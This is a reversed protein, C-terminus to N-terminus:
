ARARTRREALLDNRWAIDDPRNSWLRWVIGGDSTQGNLRIPITNILGFIASWLAVSQVFIGSPGCAFIAGAFLFNAVPGGIASITLHRRTATGRPIDHEVCGAFRIWHPNEDLAYRGGRRVLAIPGVSCSVLRLGVMGGAFVHGLEHVASLTLVVLVSVILQALKEAPQGFLDVTALMAWSAFICLTVQMPSLRPTTGGRHVPIAVVSASNQRLRRLADEGSTEGAGTSAAEGAAESRAGVAEESTIDSEHSSM